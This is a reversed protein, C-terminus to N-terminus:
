HRTRVKVPRGWRGELMTLTWIRDNVAAIEDPSPVYPMPLKTFSTPTDIFISRPVRKRM